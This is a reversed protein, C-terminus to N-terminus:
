CVLFFHGCVSKLVSLNDVAVSPDVVDPPFWDYGAALVSDGTCQFPTERGEASDITAQGCRLMIEM